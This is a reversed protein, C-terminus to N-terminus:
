ERGWLNTLLLPLTEEGTAVDRLFECTYAIVFGQEMTRGPIPVTVVDLRCFDRVPYTRFEDFLVERDDIVWRDPDFRGSSTLCSECGAGTAVTMAPFFNLIEANQDAFARLAAADATRPIGGPVSRVRYELMERASM